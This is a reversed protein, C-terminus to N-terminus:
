AALLPLEKGFNRSLKDTGDEPNFVGKKFGSSPVSLNERFTTLFNVSSAAYCDLLACNELPIKDESLLNIKFSQLINLANM